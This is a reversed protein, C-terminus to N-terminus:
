AEASHIIAIPITTAQLARQSVSGLVLGTFGGRGRSGMVLLGAGEAADLLQPAVKGTGHVPRYEINREAADPIVASVLDRLKEVAHDEPAVPDDAFLPEDRWGTQEWVTIVRLRCAAQAAISVAWELAIRSDDSLDYGIAITGGLAPLASEPVAIFPCTAHQACQIAVSGAILRDFTSHSRTGVVLLDASEAEALLGGSASAAVLVESTREVDDAPVAELAQELVRQADNELEEYPIATAGGFGMDAGTGVPYSWVLVARVSASDGALAQAWRLAALSEPSGDVGVIISQM